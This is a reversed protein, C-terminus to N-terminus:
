ESGKRLLYWGKGQAGQCAPKRQTSVAELRHHPAPLPSCIHLGTALQCWGLNVTGIVICPFCAISSFSLTWVSFGVVTEFDMLIGLTRKRLYEQFLHLLSVEFSLFTPLLLWATSTLSSPYVLTSDLSILWRPDHSWIGERLWVHCRYISRKILVDDQRHPIKRAVNPPRLM